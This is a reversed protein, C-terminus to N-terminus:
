LGEKRGCKTCTFTPIGASMVDCEPSVRWDHTCFLKKLKAFFKNIM